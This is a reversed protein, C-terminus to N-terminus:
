CSFANLNNNFPLLVMLIGLLIIFRAKLSGMNLWEEEFKVYLRIVDVEWLFLERRRFFPKQLKQSMERRFFILIIGYAKTEQFVGVTM